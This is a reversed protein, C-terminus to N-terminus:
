SPVCMQNRCDLVPVKTVMGTPAGSLAISLAVGRREGIMKSLESPCGQVASPKEDDHRFAHLRAPTEPTVKWSRRPVATVRRARTSHVSGSIAVM